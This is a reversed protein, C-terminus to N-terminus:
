STPLARAIDTRLTRGALVLHLAAWVCFVPIALLGFRLSEPGYTPRLRDSLLGVLMPGAGLGAVSTLAISVAACTGRMKPPTLSQTLGFAPGLTASMFLSWLGLALCSMQTSRALLFGVLMPCAAFSFAACSWARWRVDFRSLADASWGGILTGVLGAGGYAVAMAVGAQPLSLHRSRMLFSAAWSLVSSLVLAQIVVTALLQRLAPQRFIFRLSGSWTYSQGGGGETAGQPPERLAGLTVLSLLLGPAGAAFFVSRWGFAAALHGGVIFTLIFGLPVGVYYVSVVSARREPPFLDSIMSLMAPGGGAEGAGVFIRTALLQAFSTTFGAAATMASFVATCFALVHRRPGRDVWRGIPLGFVAFSIGFGTLLLSMQSDSFAYERKIPELTISLIARNANLVINILLFLFLAYRPNGNGM